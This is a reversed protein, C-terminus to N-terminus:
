GSKLKAWLSSGAWGIAQFPAKATALLLKGTQIGLYPAWNTLRPIQMLTYSPLWSLLGLYEARTPMGKAGYTTFIQQSGRPIFGTDVALGKDIFADHLAGAEAHSAPILEVSIGMASGVIGWLRYWATEDFHYSWSGGLRSEKERMWAEAVFYSFTLLTWAAGGQNYLPRKMKGKYRPAVRTNHLAGLVRATAITRTVTTHSTLRTNGYVLRLMMQATVQVRRAVSTPDNATQNQGFLKAVDIYRYTGPYSQQDLTALSIPQVFVFFSEKRAASFNLKAQEVDSTGFLARLVRNNKYTAYLRSIIREDDLESSKLSEVEAFATPWSGVRQPYDKAATRELLDFLSANKRDPVPNRAIKDIADIDM